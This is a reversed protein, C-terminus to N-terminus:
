VEDDLLAGIMEDETRIVALNAMFMARDQLAGVLNEELNVNPAAVLGDANAKADRPDFIIRHSPDVREIEVDVDGQERAIFNPRNPRFIEEAPERRSSRDILVEDVRANTRVNAINDARASLSISAAGLASVSSRVATIM